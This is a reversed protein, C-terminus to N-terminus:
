TLADIELAGAKLGSTGLRVEEALGRWCLTSKAVKKLM